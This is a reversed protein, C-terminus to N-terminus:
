PIKRSHTFHKWTGLIEIDNRVFAYAVTCLILLNAYVPRMLRNWGYNWLVHRLIWTNAM